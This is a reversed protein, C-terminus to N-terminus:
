EVTGIKRCYEAYWPEFPRDTAPFHVAEPAPANFQWLRIIKGSRLTEGGSIM